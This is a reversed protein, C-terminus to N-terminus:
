GRIGAVISGNGYLLPTRLKWAGPQTTILWSIIWSCRKMGSSPRGCRRGAHGRQSPLERPWKSPSVSTTSVVLKLPREGITMTPGLLPVAPMGVLVEIFITSCKV